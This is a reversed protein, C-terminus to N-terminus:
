KLRRPAVGYNNDIIKELRVVVLEPPDNVRLPCLSNGLGRSLIMTTSGDTFLGETYKPFFGQHPAIIGGIGPIRVQGGHAHGTLVLEFGERCYDEFKEPRHCLLLRFGETGAKLTRLVEPFDTRRGPDSAGLIHLVAGERELAARENLLVGVGLARLGDEFQPYTPIRDEHNGTVYYCPAVTMLQRATSLARPINTRRADIMDGTICIIDPAAQEVAPVLGPLRANHLDTIHAVRLGDFAPPLAPSTLTYETTTVATNGHHLAGALAACAAGALLATLTNM